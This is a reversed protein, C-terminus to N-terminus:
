AEAKEAAVVLVTLVMLYPVPAFVGPNVLSMMELGVWALFLTLRFKTARRRLFIKVRVIYQYLYAAAGVLGMSGIIQLPACHYWCLAFKKSPHLDRNGMWGLGVGLLPHGLFDQVARKYLQLRVEEESNFVSQLFRVIVPRFFPVLLPVCVVAIVAAATVIGIYVPRRKKDALLVFLICMMLEITGFLMGGRSGSLLLALYMALGTLLFLPQKFAKLFPFPLALMLFTSVNNRWQFALLEPKQLLRPLHSLYQHFVMFAGLLGLALMLNPIYRELRGDKDEPIAGSLWIYLLLMGFGLLGVHYLTGAAFYEKASIAGLGGVTAAISVAFIAWAARGWVMPRRYIKIHATIAGAPLVALWAMSGFQKVLADDTSSFSPNESAKIMIICALLLPAFPTLIDECLVLQAMAVVGLVIMGATEMHFVVALAALAAQAALGWPSAFFRRLQLLRPTERM